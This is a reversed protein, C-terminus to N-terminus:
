LPPGMAFLCRRSWAGGGSRTEVWTEFEELEGLEVGRRLLRAAAMDGGEVESHRRMKGDPVSMRKAPWMASVVASTMTIPLPCAPTGNAVRIAPDPFCTMR